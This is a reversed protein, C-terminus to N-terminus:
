PSNTSGLNCCPVSSASCSAARAWACRPRPSSRTAPPRAERWKSLPTRRPSSAPPLPRSRRSSPRRRPQPNHRPPRASPNPRWARPRGTRAPPRMARLPSSGGNRRPTMCTGSVAAAGQEVVAAAGAAWRPWVGASAGATVTPAPSAPAAARGRARQRGSPRVGPSRAARLWRPLPRPCRGCGSAGEAPTRAAGPGKKRVMRKRTWSGRRPGWRSRFATSGSACPRRCSTWPALSQAPPLPAPAARPVRELHAQWHPRTRRQRVLGHDRPSRASPLSRTRSCTGPNAASCRRGPGAQARPGWAGERKERGGAILPAARPGAGPAGGGRPVIPAPLPPAAAVASRSGSGLASRVARATGPLADPPHRPSDARTVARAKCSTV